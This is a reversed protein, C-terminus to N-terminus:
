YTAFEVRRNRGWADESSGAVAPREEGYSLVRVEDLVIGLNGLYERVSEARRQALSLNYETSGREDAHGELRM